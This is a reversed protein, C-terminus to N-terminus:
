HPTISCTLRVRTGKSSFHLLRGIRDGLGPFDVIENPQDHLQQTSQHLLIGRSFIDKLGTCLPDMGLGQDIMLLAAGQIKVTRGQVESASESSFLRCCFPRILDKLEFSLSSSSVRSIKSEGHPIRKM